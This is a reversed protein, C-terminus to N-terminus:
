KEKLLSELAQFFIVYDSIKKGFEGFSLSQVLNIALAFIEDTCNEVTSNLNIVIYTNKM